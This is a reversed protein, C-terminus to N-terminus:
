EFSFFFYIHTDYRSANNQNNHKKLQKSGVVKENKGIAHLCEEDLNWILFPLIQQVLADDQLVQKARETVAEFVETVTAHWKRQLQENGAQTRKSTGAQAKVYGTLLGHKKGYPLITRDWSRTATELSTGKPAATLVMRSILRRPLGESNEDHRQVVAVHLVAVHRFNLPCANYIANYIYIGECLHHMVSPTLTPKRGRKKGKKQVDVGAQIKKIYNSLVKRDIGTRVCFKSFSEGARWLDTKTMWSTALMDRYGFSPEKDWNIRKARHERPKHAEAAVQGEWEDEFLLRRRVNKRFNPNPTMVLASYTKAGNQKQKEKKKKKCKNYKRRKKKPRGVKRKPKFFEVFRKRESESYKLEVPVFPLQSTTAITLM